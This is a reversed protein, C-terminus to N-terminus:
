EKHESDRPETRREDEEGRLIYDIADEIAELSHHKAIEIAITEQKSM